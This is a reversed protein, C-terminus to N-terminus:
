PRPGPQSSLGTERVFCRRIPDDTADRHLNPPNPHDASGLQSKNSRQRQGRDAGGGEGEDDGRDLTATYSGESAQAARDSSAKPLADSFTKTWAELADLDQSIEPTVAPQRMMGRLVTEDYRDALRKVIGEVAIHEKALSELAASSMAPADRTVFLKADTLAANLLHAALEAPVEEQVYGGLHKALFREMAVALAMRNDPSRFGHGEDSAVIYEVPKEKERLAVVIQDSEAQKVRPDNAGQAILLPREFETQAARRGGDAYEGALLGHVYEPDFQGYSTVEGDLDLLQYGNEIIGGIICGARLSHDAQLGPPFTDHTFTRSSGCLVLGPPWDAPRTM